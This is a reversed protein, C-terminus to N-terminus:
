ELKRSKAEAKAAQLNVWAQIKAEERQHRFNSKNREEEEWLSVRCETISIGGNVESHRLSKSVEKEEEERSSWHSALSDCHASFQLKALDCDELVSINDSSTHPAVLPESRDPPTDHRQPSPCKLPTDCRSTTLSALPTTETGVDRHDVKGFTENASSHLTEYTDKFVFIEKSPDSYRFKMFVSHKIDTFEDKQLAESSFGNFAQCSIQVLANPDESRALNLKETFEEFGDAKRQFTEHQRSLNTGLHTTGNAPSACSSRVLWKEADEWKSSISKRSRNVVKSKFPPRNPTSPAELRRQMGAFSMAERKRQASTELFGANDNRGIANM